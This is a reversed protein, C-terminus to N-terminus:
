MINLLIVVEGDSVDKEDLINSQTIKNIFDKRKKRSITFFLL